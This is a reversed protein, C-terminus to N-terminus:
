RHLVLHTPYGPPTDMVRRFISPASAVGFPLRKYQYLGRHTNITLLKQTDEDVFLQNYAQTLDLKSFHKGGALTAFMDDPLPLPYHEVDLVGNITVEYDGCIRVNNDKKTVCVIPSAWESTRVKKLVGAQEPRCLEEDM